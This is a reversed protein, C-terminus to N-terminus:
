NVAEHQFKETLTERSINEIPPVELLVKTGGYYEIAARNGANEPGNMIVGHISVKRRQLAEITMLTHNITGLGSRAVVVVPLKWMAFLDIMLDGQRNLPVLVGGAGEIVLQEVDPLQLQSMEIQVGDIEAAAHPSLPETLRYHEPFIKTPDVGAVEKIWESDTVSDLGSQVPKWYHYDLALTLMASVLTKGVGTDTGTVIFKSPWHNM